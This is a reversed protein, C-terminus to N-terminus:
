SPDPIKQWHAYVQLHKQLEVAAVYGGILVFSFLLFRKM